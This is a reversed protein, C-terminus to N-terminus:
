RAREGSHVTYINANPERSWIIDSCRIPSALSHIHWKLKKPSLWRSTAAEIRVPPSYCNLFVWCKYGTIAFPILVPSGQPNLLPHLEFNQTPERTRPVVWSPRLVYRGFRQPFLLLSSYLLGFVRLSLFWCAENWFNLCSIYIYIYSDNLLCYKALCTVGKLSILLSPNKWSEFSIIKMSQETQFWKNLLTM